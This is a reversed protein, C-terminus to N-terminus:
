VNHPLAPCHTTTTCPQLPLSPCNLPEVQFMKTRSVHFDVPSLESKIRCVCECPLLTDGFSPCSCVLRNDSTVVIVRVRDFSPPKEKVRDRESWEKQDDESDSRSNEQETAKRRVEIAQTYKGKYKHTANGVNQFELKERAAWKRSVLEYYKPTLVENAHSLGLPVKHPPLKTGVLRESEVVTDKARFAAKRLVTAMSKDISTKKTVAMKGGKFSSILIESWSSKVKGNRRDRVHCLMWRPGESIVIELYELMSGQYSKQVVEGTKRKPAEDGKVKALKLPPLTTPFNSKVWAKLFQCAFNAEQVTEYCYALKHLVQRVFDIKPALAGWNSFRKMVEQLVLHFYCVCRKAFAYVGKEIAYDCARAAWPDRDAVMNRVLDAFRRGLLHPVATTFLWVYAAFCPAWLIGTLLNVLKGNGDLCCFVFWPRKDSALGFAGDFSITDGFKQAALQGATTVIAVAMFTSLFSSASPLKKPPKTHRNDDLM